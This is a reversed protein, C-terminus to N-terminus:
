ISLRAAAAAAAGTQLFQGQSEVDTMPVIKNSLTEVSCQECLLQYIISTEPSLRPQQINQIGNQLATLAM